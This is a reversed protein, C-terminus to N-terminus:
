FDDDDYNDIDSRSFDTQCARYDDTNRRQDVNQNTNRANRDTLDIRNENELDNMNNQKQKNAQRQNQNQNQNNNRRMNM